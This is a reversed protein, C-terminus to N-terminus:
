ESRFQAHCIDCTKSIEDLALHMEALSLEPAERALALSRQELDGTLARMEQREGGSLPIEEIAPLIQRASSAMAESVRVVEAVRREREVEIDMEKPLRDDSLRDLGRMIQELRQSHIPHRSAPPADALGQEYRSQAPQLFGCALGVLLLLAIPGRAAQAIPRASRSRRPRTL